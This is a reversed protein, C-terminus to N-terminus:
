RNLQPVNNIVECNRFTDQDERAVRIDGFCEDDGKGGDVVDRTDGDTANLTDIHKGGSVRDRDGGPIPSTGLTGTPGFQSALIIDDGDKGEIKDNRNSEGITEDRDTGEIQAAYAAAAFLAVMVAMAALLM